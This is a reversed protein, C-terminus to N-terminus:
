REVVKWIDGFRDAPWRVDDKMSEEISSTSYFIIKMDPTLSKFGNAYGAPIHLMAPKHGSLVFRDIKEPIPPNEWDDIKVAAVLAAGQVVYVYKEEFRHGHWARVFGAVHNEVMYFRKVRAFDFDNVFSLAGRDDYHSAGAILRVGSSGTAGM